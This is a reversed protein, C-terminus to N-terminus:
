MQKYNFNVRWNNIKIRKFSSKTSEINNDNSDIQEEEVIDLEKYDFLSTLKTYNENNIINETKLYEFSSHLTSFIQNPNIKLLLNM